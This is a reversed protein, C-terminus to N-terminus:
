PANLVKVLVPYVAQTQRNRQAPDIMDHPVKMAKPFDICTLAYLGKSRWLGMLQWAILDNVAEDGRSTILTVDQVRPSRELAGAFTALSVRLLQGLARSSFGPYCHAPCDPDM